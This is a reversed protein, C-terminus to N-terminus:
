FIVQYIILFQLKWQLTPAGKMQTRVLVLSCCLTEHYDVIFGDFVYFSSSTMLSKLWFTVRSFNLSLGESTHLLIRMLTASLFSIGGLSAIECEVSFNWLWNGGFLCNSWSLIYNGPELWVNSVTRFSKKNCRNSPNFM